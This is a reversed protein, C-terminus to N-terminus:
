LLIRAFNEPTNFLEEDGVFLVNPTQEIVEQETIISKLSIM